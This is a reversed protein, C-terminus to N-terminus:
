KKCDACYYYAYWLAGTQKGVVWLPQGSNPCPPVATLSRLAQAVVEDNPSLKYPNHHVQGTSQDTYCDAKFGQAAPLCRTGGLCGKTPGANTATPANPFGADRWADFLKRTAKSMHPYNTKYHGTQALWYFIGDKTAWRPGDDGSGPDVKNGLFVADAPAQAKAREDLPEPGPDWWTM